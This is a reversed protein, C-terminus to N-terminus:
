DKKIFKDTYIYQKGNLETIVTSFSAFVFRDDQNPTFINYTKYFCNVFPNSHRLNEIPFGTQRQMIDYNLIKVKKNLRLGDVM